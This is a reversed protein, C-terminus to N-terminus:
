LGQAVTSTEEWGKRSGTSRGENAGGALARLGAKPFEEDGRLGVGIGHDATAGKSSTDGGLDTIAREARGADGGIQVDPREFLGSGHRVM